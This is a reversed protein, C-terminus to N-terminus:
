QRIHLRCQSVQYLRGFYKCFSTKRERLAGLGVEAIFKEDLANRSAEAVNREARETTRCQTTTLIRFTCIIGTRSRYLQHLGSALSPHIHSRASSWLAVKSGTVSREKSHVTRYKNFYYRSFFASLLFLVTNKLDNLTWWCTFQGAVSKFLLFVCSVHRWLLLVLCSIFITQYPCDSWKM